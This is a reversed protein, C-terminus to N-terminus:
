CAWRAAVEHSAYWGLWQGAVPGSVWVVYGSVLCRPILSCVRVCVHVFLRVCVCVVTRWTSRPTQHAESTWQRLVHVQMAM